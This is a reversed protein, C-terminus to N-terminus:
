REGRRAVYPVVPTADTEATRSLTAVLRVDTDTAVDSIDVPPVVDAAHVAWGSGDDTEVDFTVSGGGHDYQAGMIDWASLDTPITDFMVAASGDLAAEHVGFDDIWHTITTAPNDDYTSFSLDGWASSANLFGVTHETGDFTVTVQDNAWDFEFVYSYAKEPTVSAALDVITAGELIIKSGGTNDSNTTDKDYHIKCIPAPTAATNMFTWKLNNYDQPDQSIAHRFEVGETVASGPTIAGDDTSAERVNGTLNGTPDAVAAGTSDTISYSIEEYGVTGDEYREFTDNLDIVGSSASAGGSYAVSVGAEEFSVAEQTVLLPVDKKIPEWKATAESYVFVPRSDVSTDIWFVGDRTDKPRTDQPYAIKAQVPRSSMGAM